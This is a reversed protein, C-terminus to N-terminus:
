EDDDPWTREIRRIAESHERARHVLEALAEVQATVAPGTRTLVNNEEIAEQTAEKVKGKLVGNHIDDRVGNTADRAQMALAAAFLTGATSLSFGVVSVIVPTARDDEFGHTVLATIVMLIALLLVGFAAMLLVSRQPRV